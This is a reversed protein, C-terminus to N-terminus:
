VEEIGVIGECGGREVVDEVIGIIAGKRLWGSMQATTAMLRVPTQYYYTHGLLTQSM